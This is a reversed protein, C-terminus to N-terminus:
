SGLKFGGWALKTFVLSPDYQDRAARLRRLNEEGYTQIPDQWEAADGIYLFETALGKDKNAKHLRGLLNKAWAEVRLDDEPRDWSTAIQWWIYSEETDLGFANGVGNNKGVAAASKPASNLVLTPLIGKVDAIDEVANRWQQYVWFLQDADPKITHHGFQIRFMQNPSELKSHWHVPETVNHIRKVAPIATFNAFRSPPSETTEQLGFIQPTVLKTSVNYNLNIVAGAGVSGDESLVMDCTAKIFAPVASENFVQTTSTVLPVDYTKMVFKTVLGFNGAGGKLSWFLEPNIDQSAQVSTGNGLIVDYSVVNDMTYGYKNLFYSVGGILTLGPVGITKLRGGIAYRKFPALAEYVDVWKNGPAVEVTYDEDNVKIDRLNNLALLVGDNISNSGPANM